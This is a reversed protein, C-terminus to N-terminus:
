VQKLLWNKFKLATQKETAGIHFEFPYRTKWLEKPTQEYSDYLSTAKWDYITVVRDTDEDIFVYEGSVKYGDSESPKGFLEILRTPPISVYDQLCTGSVDEESALKFSMFDGM